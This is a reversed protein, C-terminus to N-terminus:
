PGGLARIESTGDGAIKVFRRGYEIAEEQSKAEILAFGGIMEKSETYPGDKVSVTGASSQIITSPGHPDWGGTAILIGSKTMEEILKGMESMLRQMEAPDQHKWSQPASSAPRWLCMYRM